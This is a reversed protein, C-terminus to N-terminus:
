HNSILRRKATTRLSAHDEELSVADMRPEVWKVCIVGVLVFVAGGIQIYTLTQGLLIWAFVTAALVENLAVFSGLRAGLRRTAEIGTVYAFAATVVGLLALALWWPLSTAGLAVTGTTFTLPLIGTIGAIGLAVAAVCLGGAALTISPIGTTNNGSILFYVTAGITAGLAWAVGVVNVSVGTGVNLLLALGLVALSAGVFAASRPRNGYRFWLWGVVVLPAMYEILLAVSVDLTQIAVFYCLQAGAVAFLGYAVMTGMRSLVRDWLGRAALFGPVALVVAGIVVRALTTAGPSWGLDLLSKGVSGSLGFFVASALAFLLGTLFRSNPGDNGFSKM